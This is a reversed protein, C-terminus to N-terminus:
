SVTWVASPILSSLSLTPSCTLKERVKKKEWGHLMGNHGKILNQQLAGGRDVAYKVGAPHNIQSAPGVSEKIILLFYNDLLTGPPM